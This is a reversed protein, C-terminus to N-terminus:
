GVFFAMRAARMGMVSRGGLNAALVEVFDREAVRGFLCPGLGAPAEEALLRL